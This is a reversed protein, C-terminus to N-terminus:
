LNKNPDQRMDFVRVIFITENSIRYTIKCNHHILKRYTHKFHNFAEDIAGRQTKDVDDNMLGDTSEKIESVIKFAKENGYLSSYFATLKKLDKVSRSTWRINKVSEDM